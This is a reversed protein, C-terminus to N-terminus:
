GVRRLRRRAAAMMAVTVAATGVSRVVDGRRVTLRGLTVGDRDVSGAQRLAAATSVSPLWGEFRLRSADLVWPRSLYRLEGAPSAAAGLQWLREAVSRAVPEPLVVRRRGTLSAAESAAVWDSPAVNYVGELRGSVALALARAADDPHLAQVPPDLGRLGLLAPAALWRSAFTGWAPAWVPAPRLVVTRAAGRLGLVLREMEALQGGPPFDPHPRLPADESLPVPNDAHAGYVLGSSWLVVARDSGANQLGALVHRLQWLADAGQGAQDRASADLAHFLMVVAAPGVQAALREGPAAEVYEFKPGLLPPETGSLGLVRDVEPDAELAVALARAAPHSAGVLAVTREM